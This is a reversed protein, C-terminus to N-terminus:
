QVIYYQPPDTPGPHPWATSEFMSPPVNKFNTKVIGYSTGWTVTGMAWFEEEAIELIQM